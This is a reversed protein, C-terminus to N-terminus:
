KERGRIELGVGYALDDQHGFMIGKGLLKKLNRYLNVTEKTAKADIPLDTSIKKILAPSAKTYSEIIQWTTKDSDFVTNLGQEEM